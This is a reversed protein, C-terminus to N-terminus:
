ITNGNLMKFTGSYGLIKGWWPHVVEMMMHFHDDDIAKEEAYGKGFLFGIPLPIFKGFLKLCYGKHLLLVKSGDWKFECKWGIGLKMVEIVESKGIPHLTSYFQYPKKDPFQFIRDFVFHNNEPASRFAVTVPINNGTFPVLLGFLRAFPSLLSWIKSGEVKMLGSTKTVDSSFPTNAYHKKMVAPLDDWCEGFISKFIPESM